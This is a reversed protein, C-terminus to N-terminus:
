RSVEFNIMVTVIEYQYATKFEIAVAAVLNDKRKPFKKYFIWKDHSQKIKGDPRLLIEEVMFPTIKRQFMREVAHQTYTVEM